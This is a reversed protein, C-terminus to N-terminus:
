FKQMLVKQLQRLRPLLMLPLLQVLLMVCKM